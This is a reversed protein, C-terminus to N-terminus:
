AIPIGNYLSYTLWWVFSAGLLILVLNTFSRKFVRDWIAAWLGSAIIFTIVCAYILIDLFIGAEAIYFFGFVMAFIMLWVLMATVRMWGGRNLMYMTIGAFILSGIM